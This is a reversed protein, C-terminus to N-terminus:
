LALAILVTVAVAIYALLILNWNIVLRRLFGTM